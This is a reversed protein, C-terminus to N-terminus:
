TLTNAGALGKWGLKMKTRNNAWKSNAIIEGGGNFIRVLTSDCWGFANQIISVAGIIKSSYFSNYVM